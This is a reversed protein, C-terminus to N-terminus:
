YEHDLDPLDLVKGRGKMLAILASTSSVSAESKCQIYVFSITNAPTSQWPLAYLYSAYEMEDISLAM